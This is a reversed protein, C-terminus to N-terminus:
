QRAEELGNRESAEKLDMSHNFWFSQLAGSGQAESDAAGKGAAVEGWHGRGM